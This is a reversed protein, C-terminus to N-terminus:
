DGADRRRTGAGRVAGSTPTECLCSQCGIGPCTDALLRHCQLTGARVQNFHSFVAPGIVMLDNLVAPANHLKDSASVLLTSASEPCLKALCELKREDWDRQKASPPAASATPRATKWFTM